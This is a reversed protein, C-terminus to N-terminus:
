REVALRLCCRWSRRCRVLHRSRPLSTFSIFLRKDYPLATGCPPQEKKHAREKINSQELLVWVKANCLLTLIPLFHVYSSLHTLYILIKKCSLM